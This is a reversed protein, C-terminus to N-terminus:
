PRRQRDLRLAPHGPQPGPLAPHLGRGKPRTSQCRPEAADHVAAPLDGTEQNVKCNISPKSQGVGRPDFGVIDFRDNLSGFGKKTAQITDVATAGPGGFNVFLSGIRHQRDTAPLRTLALRIKGKGAFAYDKPVSASACQFGEANPCARWKLTPVSSSRRAAAGSPTAAIAAVLTSVVLARRGRRRPTAM